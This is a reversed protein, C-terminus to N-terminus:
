ELEAAFPSPKYSSLAYRWDSVRVGLRCSDPRREEQFLYM